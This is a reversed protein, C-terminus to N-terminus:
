VRVESMSGLNDKVLVDVFLPPEADLLFIGKEHFLVVKGCM